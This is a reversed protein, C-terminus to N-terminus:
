RQNTQILEIVVSTATATRRQRRPPTAYVVRVPSASGPPRYDFASFMQAAFHEEILTMTAPKAINWTLQYGSVADTRDEFNHGM